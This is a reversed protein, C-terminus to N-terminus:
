AAVGLAANIRALAAARISAGAHDPTRDRPLRRRQRDGGGAHRRAGPRRAAAGAPRIGPTVLKFDAGLARRLAPAEVRPACSATSAADRASLRALRLAQAEADGAFGIERSIAAALSTLVTM